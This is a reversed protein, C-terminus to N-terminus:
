PIQKSGCRHQSLRGNRQLTSTGDNHLNTITMILMIMMVVVVVMTMLMTLVLVPCSFCTLLHNMYIMSSTFCCRILPNLCANTVLPIYLSLRLPTVLPQPRRLPPPSYIAVIEPPDGIATTEIADRLSRLAAVATEVRVADMFGKQFFFFVMCYYMCYYM